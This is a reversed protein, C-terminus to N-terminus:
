IGLNLETEAVLQELYGQVEELGSGVIKMTRNYSDQALQLQSDTFSFATQWDAIGADLPLVDYTYKGDVKARNVWTPLIDVSSLIVTGDSYKNFGFSFLVGDETHGTKLNMEVRNQNSIFNGMSYLCVTKQSPDETSTLLEMPQVVHPHGGVIVDVGLDCMAQAIQNQTGNEKTQYENGWHIYLVIAEAGATEMADINAAMEEYFADLESYQFRGILAGAKESMPIGNLGPKDLHYESRAEYTYCIMGVLVGDIEQVQWLPIDSSPVTGLHNLGAEQLVQQTRFFGTERTDYSHNNATLLMDFGLQKLSHAIGDPCNFQPYGSYKYGNDKGALTTELNAVAYDASEVYSQLFAFLKSYDYNDGEIEAANVVGMHMLVDGTNLLTAVSQLTIPPETPATTPPETPPVTPPETPITTPVTTPPNTTLQTSQTPQTTPLTPASPEPLSVAVGVLLALIVALAVVAVVLGRHLNPKDSM